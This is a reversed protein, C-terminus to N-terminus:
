SKANLSHIIERHSYQWAPILASLLNLFFCIGLAIAFVPLNLLMSPSLVVETGEPPIDIFTNGLQMVSNRGLLILLYSSLLGILGGLVTFLFNESIIQGMLNHIPAGFARRVGMEAMRREMRSDTMGSLSVAPILLLIFFVFGYQLLIKNFNPTDTAWYRFVSQWHRDPQGNVTFELDGLTQNYRNINEIVEQRVREVDSTSPALIYAQMQGLSGGNGFIEKHQPNLTYPIWLQAYTRQMAYSADKVVGCVRFSRFDLSIQKGIVETTGFLRKALSEAVVAVSIGSQFDADTFPKGSVFRFPFVTWFKTDVQKVTVPLQEKSGDPQVYNEKSEGFLATVAEASELSQFCTEIVSLSLSSSWWGGEDNKFKEVGSDVILMRDRNTEPYINAIKIYFVISLVMVITISLGTGIIYISSFLKEQKILNWAQKFHLGRGWGRGVLSPLQKLANTLSVLNKKNKM